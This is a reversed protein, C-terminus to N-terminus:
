CIMEEIKFLLLSGWGFRWSAVNKKGYKYVEKQEETPVFPKFVIKNEPGIPRNLEDSM